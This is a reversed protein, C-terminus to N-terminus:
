LATVAVDNEESHGWGSAHAEFVERPWWIKVFAGNAPAARNGFTLTAGSRELLTKAIFFGLGMGGPGQRTTSHTRGGPRSTVYPEGITDLIEPAFGPGDDFITVVVEHTSWRARVLVQDKAFDVANEVINGIGYIVGPRRETTPEARADSDPIESHADVIINVADARYPDAAEDLLQGISLYAHMPDQESPHRTLKQLIERCRQAQSRLLEIDDRNPDESHMSRELERTVVQITALPTGLEHAAAAALGDLAHLKQEHALVLETASLAASMQRAEKSLRWAYVALFILTSIVATLIGLEYLRPLAIPGALLHDERWPLPMHFKVLLTAIVITAVGLLITNRAPLTAASITVPAVLLVIFPNGLGGTLDILAALQLMDYGLLVTAYWPELRFRSPHRVRLYVNLWASLTIFALCLGVPMPFKFWLAVVTVSVLQGAVAVWRLRVITQLRLRSDFQDIAPRNAPQASLPM